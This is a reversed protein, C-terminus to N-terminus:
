NCCVQSTTAESTQDTDMDEPDNEFSEYSEKTDKAFIKLREAIEKLVARNEPMITKTVTAEVKNENEVKGIEVRCRERKMFIMINKGGEGILHPIFPVTIEDLDIRWPMEVKQKARAQPVGKPKRPEMMAFDKEVIKQLLYCFKLASARPYPGPVPSEYDVEYLEGDYRLRDMSTSLIKYLEGGNTNSSVYDDIFKVSHNLEEDTVDEWLNATFLFGIFCYSIM